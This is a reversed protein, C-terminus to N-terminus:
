IYLNLCTPPTVGVLTSVWADGGDDGGAGSM